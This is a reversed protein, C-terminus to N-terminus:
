VLQNIEQELDVFRQSMENLAREAEQHRKVAEFFEESQVTENKLRHNLNRLELIERDKSESVSKM